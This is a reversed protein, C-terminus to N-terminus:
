SPEAVDALPPAAVVLGLRGEPRPRAVMPAASLVWLTDAASCMAAM